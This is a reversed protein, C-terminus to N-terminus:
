WGTKSWDWSFGVCTERFIGRPHGIRWSEWVQYACCSTFDSVHDQLSPDSFKPQHSHIQHSLQIIKFTIQFPFYHNHLPLLHLWHSYLLSLNLNLFLCRGHQSEIHSAKWFPEFKVANTAWRRCPLEPNSGMYWGIINIRFKIKESLHTMLMIPTM